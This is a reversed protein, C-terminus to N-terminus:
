YADTAIANNGERAGAAKPGFLMCPRSVCHCSGYWRRNKKLPAPIGCIDPTQLWVRDDDPGSTPHPSRSFDCRGHDEECMRYVPSAALSGINAIRGSRRDLPAPDDGCGATGIGDSSVHGPIRYACSRDRCSDDEHRRRAYHNRRARREHKRM